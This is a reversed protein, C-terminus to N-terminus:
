PPTHLLFLLIVSLYERLFRYARGMQNEVTKVSIDLNAAIEKQSLGEIKSLVYVLRCREPLADIAQNVAQQLEALELEASAANHDSSLEPMEGDGSPVRKQDRLYNLSRNRVGRRLYPGIADIIPLIHHKQWLNVFFEQVIDESAAEDRVIRISVRCLEVYYRRFLGDLGFSKGERLAALLEEDNPSEANLM